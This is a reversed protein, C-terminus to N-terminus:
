KEKIGRVYGLPKEFPVGFKELLARSQEPNRARIVFIVQLGHPTATDEYTLEAFVSQDTLGISYNGQKDFAGASVGHFDRLRPLVLNIFRDAFEYMRNDRLTVKLGIRSGERLKFSAISQKAITQVPKQGTIKILTNEAVELLRKDDKARGLGVNIVIKELRPSQHRNALKLEDKLQMAIEDDYSKKLRSIYVPQEAKVAPAKNM